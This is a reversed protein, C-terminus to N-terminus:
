SAVAVPAVRANALTLREVLTSLLGEAIELRCAESLVALAAADFEAVLADTM